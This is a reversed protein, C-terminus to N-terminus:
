KNVEARVENLWDELGHLISNAVKQRFEPTALLAEEDPHSMFAGEILVAIMRHPRIIALNSYINGFGPVGIELARKYMHESLRMAQPHYWYTSVGRAKIPDASSPVSNNHISIMIDAGAAAAKVPRQDLPVTVDRTRTLVVRAGKKRLEVALRRTIDLNVEKEMLGGAGVAGSERGGHGADLVIVLDRLPSAPPAALKPPKKIELVLAGKEYYADYGWLHKQNLVVRLQYVGMAPQLWQLEKIMGDLQRSIWDTDSYAGYITLEITPPSVTEVIEFPLKKSVGLSIKVGYDSPVATITGVAARPIPTGAPLIRMAEDYVWGEKGGPMSLRLMRGVRGTVEAVIGSPLILDWTGNPSSRVIARSGAVEAVVPITSDRISLKGSAFATEVLRGDTLSVM